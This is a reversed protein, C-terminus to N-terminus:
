GPDVAPKTRPSPAATRVLKMLAPMLLITVAGSIAMIAAMFFGVTNYPVLPAALLPLFGIAIVVANRAIARGPEHFMEEMAARWDGCRQHIARFRQLFHIAFDVALGLTLSSLVAVPMDYDKGVLGIVGYTLVITVTLPIMALVGYLLSRFLVIMMLFVMLFAGALSRLMGRVMKQQWIVNLHTLGAWQVDVGAPPPNASIYREIQETVRTMQQNDGSKLQAWITAARFDPAVFHWLDDPKHSSQFTLLTQAVGSSTPPISLHEAQGGRLERHVTKVIDAVSTSKGVIGTRQLEKQLGELYSLAEPRQFFRYASEAAEHHRLLARWAEADPKEAADLQQEIRTILAPLRETLPKAAVSRAIREYAHRVDAGSRSAEALTDAVRESLRKETANGRQRLVLYAPYTGAFHHNLVRDAVRIRHSARFWRVPNDNIEIRSIGFASVGLVLLSSVVVLKAKGLTAGGLRPLLRGLRGTAGSGAASLQRLRKPSLRVVYAPVLTVTLVFALLIGTAVFIGFVRVPPIPTFALSAFGAASTLSTYLMPTFLTRMVDRILIRPSSGAECRDAFESLVHVSDVVAIPMLFIPIMSSMIHVTFGLGILLGMTALVTAFAVLMPAVILSLSRFFWWMLLFIVLAALPASIAMQIFMQVGFTDEAVPLGTIHYAEKGGLEDIVAGIQQSIRYSQDKAEIPVYLALARGDDSVLTGRYLPLRMAAERVARAEERTKPPQRLLWEFRVTGEGEPTINDVTSPSMMDRAIVGDVQGIRQALRHIRALSQPNFVGDPDEEQTVGIVIMDHLAFREKTANHFVRAPEDARLMNEPDTDVKAFPILSGLGV